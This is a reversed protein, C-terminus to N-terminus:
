PEGVIFRIEGVDAGDVHIHNRSFSNRVCIFRKIRIEQWDTPLKAGLDIQGFLWKGAVDPTLWYNLQKTLVIINEITPYAHCGQGFISSSDVQAAATIAAEDFPYFDTVPTETECLWFRQDDDSATRWTGNGIMARMDTPRELLLRCQHRAFRKFALRTLHGGLRESLRQNIANYFDSGHIYNRSGKYKLTLEIM